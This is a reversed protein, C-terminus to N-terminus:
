VNELTLTTTKKDALHAKNEWEQITWKTLKLLMEADSVDLFSDLVTTIAKKLPMKPNERHLLEVRKAVADKFYAAQKCPFIDEDKTNELFHVVEHLHTLEENQLVEEFSISKEKNKM